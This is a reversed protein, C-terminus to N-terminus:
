QEWELIRSVSSDVALQSSDGNGKNNHFYGIRISCKRKQLRSMDTVSLVVFLQIM